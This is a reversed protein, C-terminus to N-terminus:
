LYNEMLRKAAKTDIIMIQSNGIQKAGYSQKYYYILDTKAVMVLNGEYGCMESYRAAIAIL